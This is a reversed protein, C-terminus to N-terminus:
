FISPNFAFALSPKVLHEINITLIETNVITNLTRPPFTNFLLVVKFYIYYVYAISKTKYAM